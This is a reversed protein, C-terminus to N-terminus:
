FGRRDILDAAYFEAHKKAMGAILAGARLGLEGGKSSAMAILTLLEHLDTDGSAGAFHDAVVDAVAIQDKYANPTSILRQPSDLWADIFENRLFDVAGKHARDKADQKSLHANTAAGIFDPTETRTVLDQLSGM